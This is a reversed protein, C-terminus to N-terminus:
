LLVDGRGCRCHIVNGARGSPDGPYMLRGGTDYFYGNLSAVEGDAERHDFRDDRTRGDNSSIWEKQLILGSSEAGAQTGFNYASHSETRSIMMSRYKSISPAILRIGSAIEDVSFGAAIGVSIRNRVYDVTTDTLGTVRSLAQLSIFSQVAAMFEDQIDSKRIYQNGHICKAAGIIREGSMTAARTWERELIDSMKAQHEDLKFSFLETTGTDKYVDSLTILARKIESDISPTMSNAIRSQLMQQIRREEQRNKGTLLRKKGAKIIM